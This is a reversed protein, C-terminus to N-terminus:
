VPQVIKARSVSGKEKKEFKKLVFDIPHNMTFVDKELDFGFSLKIQEM